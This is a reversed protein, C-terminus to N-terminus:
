RQLFLFLRGSGRRVDLRVGAGLDRSSVSREFEQENEIRKGDVELIVDKVRLGARAALGGPVIQTVVAGQLAGEYGLRHALGSTLTQVTLGLDAGSNAQGIAVHEEPMEGIEVDVTRREGDRFVELPVVTGPDTQAIRLRFSSVDTVQEDRIRTIIDGRELGAQEAPTNDVVDAVLAGKTEDFGFSRALGPNLDQINVGLWGRVVRGHEILNDMISRAMDIPIALGIGMYGGSKTFIATNVGVVEGRLNVLPGGSNGPNIAADTQIFDEYDAIGVRSRGIASVIGATITSSLGFPNGAAVVWHGVRLDASGGLKAPVLDSAEIKLVALDTKPDAGVVEAPHTEGSSLKITVEDADRIVHHNTIIHGDTSVIFGTGAGQQVYGETPPQPKTLQDFFPHGFFDGFPQSRFPGLDWRAAQVKKTASISVVSPKVMSAVNEFASSLEELATPEPLEVYNRPMEVHNPPTSHAVAFPAQVPNQALLAAGSAVVGIAAAGVLVAILFSKSFPFM